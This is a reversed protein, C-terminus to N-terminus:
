FCVEAKGFLTTSFTLTIKQVNKFSISVVLPHPSMKLCKRFDVFSEAQNEAIIVFVISYHRLYTM